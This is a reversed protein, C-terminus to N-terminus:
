RRRRRSKRTRRRSKRTRRRSKKTRRRSKRTRRRSRTKKRRRRGGSQPNDTTQKRNSPERLQYGHYERWARNSEHNFEDILDEETLTSRAHSGLAAFVYNYQPVADNDQINGSM